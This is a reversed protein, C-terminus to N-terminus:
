DDNKLLKYIVYPWVISFKKLKKLQGIETNLKQRNKTPSASKIKDTTKVAILLDIYTAISLTIYSIILSM